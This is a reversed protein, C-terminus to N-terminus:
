KQKLASEVRQMEADLVEQTTARTVADHDVSDGM